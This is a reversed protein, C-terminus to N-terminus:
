SRKFQFEKEDSASDLEAHRTKQKTNRKALHQILNLM